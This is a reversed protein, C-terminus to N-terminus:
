GRFHLAAKPNQKRYKELQILDIDFEGSFLANIKDAHEECVPFTRLLMGDYKKGSTVALLNKGAPNECFICPKGEAELSDGRVLTVVSEM